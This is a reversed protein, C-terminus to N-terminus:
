DPTGADVSPCGALRRGAACASHPLTFTTAGAVCQQGLVLGNSTIAVLTGTADYYYLYSFDVNTWTIITYAGCTMEESSSDGCFAPDKEAAALTPVCHVGFQGAPPDGMACQKAVTQTCAFNGGHPPEASDSCGGAPVLLAVVFASGVTKLKM